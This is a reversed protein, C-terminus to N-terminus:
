FTICTDAIVLRPSNQDGNITKSGTINAVCTANRISREMRRIVMILSVIDETSHEHSTIFCFFSVFHRSRRICVKNVNRTSLMRTSRRTASRRINNIKVSLEYGDLTENRRGMRAACSDFILTIGFWRERERERERKDKSRIMVM